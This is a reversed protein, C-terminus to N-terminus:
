ELRHALCWMPIICPAKKNNKLLQIMGNKHGMMNSVGDFYYGIMEHYGTGQEDALVKNICEYLVSGKTNEPEAVKFFRIKPIYNEFVRIMTIEKESETRDTSDDSYVSFFDTEAITLNLYNFYHGSIHSFFNSVAKDNM